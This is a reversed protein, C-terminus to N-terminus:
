YSSTWPFSRLSIDWLNFSRGCIAVGWHFGIEGYLGFHLITVHIVVMGKMKM